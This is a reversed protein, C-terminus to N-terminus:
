FLKEHNGRHRAGRDTIRSVGPDFGDDNRARRLIWSAVHIAEGRRGSKQRLGTKKRIPRVLTETTSIKENMM